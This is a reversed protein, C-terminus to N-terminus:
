LENEYAALQAEMSIGVLQLLAQQQQLMTMLAADNPHDWGLLHLLGHAALWALEHNLPHPSSQRQATDVSIVIDGLYIPIQQRLAEVNPVNTEVVPFALVDTPKDINRYHANLARIRQDDTFRLALEYAGIPSTTPNLYILWTNLWAEWQEDSPRDTSTAFDAVEDQVIVELQILSQSM